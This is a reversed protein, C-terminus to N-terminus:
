LGLTRVPCLCGCPVSVALPIPVPGGERGLGQNGAWSARGLEQQAVPRRRMPQPNLFSEKPGWQSIPPRSPPM